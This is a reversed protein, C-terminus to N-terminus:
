VSEQADQPKDGRKGQAPATVMISGGHGCQPLCFRSQARASPSRRHEPQPLFARASGQPRHPATRGGARRLSLPCGMQWFQQRRSGRLQFGQALHPFRRRTAATVSAPGTQWLQRGPRATEQLMQPDASPPRIPM